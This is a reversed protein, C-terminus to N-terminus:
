ELQATFTASANHIIHEAVDGHHHYEVSAGPTGPVGTTVTSSVSVQFTDQSSLIRPDLLEGAATGIRWKLRQKLFPEVHEPELSPLAGSARYDVLLSTIPITTEVVAAQEENRGCNDCAERPAAFIHHVGALSPQQYGDRSTAPAAGHEHQCIFFFVTFTGNCAMRTVKNDIFWDRSGKQGSSGSTVAHLQRTAPGGRSAVSKEPTALIKTDEHDSLLVPTKATDMPGRFFRTAAIDIPEMGPPAEAECNRADTPDFISWQYMDRFRKKVDEKGGQLEAYTYGLVTHDRLGRPKWMSAPESGPRERFPVLPQDQDEASKLWSNPDGAHIGQWITALREIQGHHMWFIPDFAATSVQSMHGGGGGAIFRKQGDGDQMTSNGGIFAHYNNHLGELSGSGKEALYRAWKSADPLLEEKTQSSAFIEYDDYTKHLLFSMVLRNSDMRLANLVNNLMEVSTKADELQNVEPCPYRTTRERLYQQKNETGANAAVWDSEPVFDKEFTWHHLPNDMTVPQNDPYMLVNVEEMTFAIPCSYDYSYSTYGNEIVGPFNVRGGRPRYYDWYPLRFDLAAQEYRKRDEPRTWKQAIDLMTVFISQEIMALYARHWIPFTTKAHVCYGSGIADLGHASKPDYEKGRVNDWEKLPLGHIGSIEAYRMISPKHDPRQIEELALLFLNFSDPKDRIMVDIDTRQKIGAVDKLGKVLGANNAERLAQLATM